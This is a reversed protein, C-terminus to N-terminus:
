PTVEALQTDADAPDAQAQDEESEPVLISVTRNRKTFYTRVVRQIDEPTVEEYREV